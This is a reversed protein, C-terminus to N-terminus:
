ACWGTDIANNAFDDMMILECVYQVNTSIEGVVRLRKLAIVAKQRAEQRTRGHAFLHGFQSDAYAHVEAGPTRVSFYGWVSPAGQFNVQSIAGVTPKWGDSANEATIRVAIVHGDVRSFPDTDHSPAAPDVLFRGLRPTMPADDPVKSLDIGMAVMLQLAPLNCGTIGETM